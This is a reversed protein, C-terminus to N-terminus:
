AINTTKPLCNVVLQVVNLIKAYLFILNLVNYEINYYNNCVWTLSPCSSIKCYSVHFNVWNFKFLYETSLKSNKKCTLFNNKLSIHKMSLSSIVCKAGTTIEFIKGVFLFSLATHVWNYCFRNTKCDEICVTPQAARLQLRPGGASSTQGPKGALIRFVM